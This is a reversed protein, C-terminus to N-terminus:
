ADDDDYVSRATKVQEDRDECYKIVLLRGHRTRYSLFCVGMDELEYRWRNMQRKLYNVTVPKGCFGAFGECFVSNSGDFRGISKMYEMLKIIIEPINENDKILSDSTMKWQCTVKDLMLELTRDEIDRGTCFLTAKRDTRKPKKLVMLTDASGAIGNTGSIENMFDSDSLKRTHHVLLVCINLEDAVRKLHSIEAYDVAYSMQGLPMRIKQFTDIVVLRTDPYEDVFHRIEDALGEGLQSCEFAIKLNDSAEETSRILREQMRQESDELDIYLVTSQVTDMGWFSGGKAITLCLQLVLWSKGIKPSGALITLGPKLFSDVLFGARKFREDTLEISGIVGLRKYEYQSENDYTTM